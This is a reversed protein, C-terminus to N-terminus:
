PAKMGLYRREVDKVADAREVGSEEGMAGGTSTAGGGIKVKLNGAALGGLRRLSGAGLIELVTLDLGLNLRFWNRLEIALLSDVGLNELPRDLETELEAHDRLMFTFLAKGIETALLDASAQHTLTEPTLKAQHLFGHLVANTKDTTTSTTDASTSINHYLAMRPDRRWPTRNGPADLPM